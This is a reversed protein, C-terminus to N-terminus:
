RKESNVTLAGDVDDSRMPADAWVEFDEWSWKAVDGNPQRMLGDTIDQALYHVEFWENGHKDKLNLGYLRFNGDSPDSEIPQWVTM